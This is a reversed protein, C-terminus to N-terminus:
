QDYDENNDAADAALAALAVSIITVTKVLIQCFVM